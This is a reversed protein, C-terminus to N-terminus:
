RKIIVNTEKNQKYKPRTKKSEKPKKQPKYILKHHNQKM